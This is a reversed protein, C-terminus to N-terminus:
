KIYHSEKKMFLRIKIRTVMNTIDQSMEILRRKTFLILQIVEDKLDTLLNRMEPTKIRNKIQDVTSDLPLIGRKSLNRLQQM